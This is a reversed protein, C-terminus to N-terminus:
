TVEEVEYISEDDEITINGIEESLLERVTDADLAPGDTKSLKVKVTLEMDGGKRTTAGGAWRPLLRAPLSVPGTPPLEGYVGRNTM